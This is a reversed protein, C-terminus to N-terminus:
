AHAAAATRAAAAALALALMVTAACRMVVAAMAPTCLWPRHRRHRTNACSAAAAAAAAGAPRRSPLLLDCPPRRRRWSAAPRPALPHPRRHLPALCPIEPLSRLRRRPESNKPGCLLCNQFLLRRVPPSSQAQISAMFPTSRLLHSCRRPCRVRVARVQPVPPLRPSRPAMCPLQLYCPHQALYQSVVTSSGQRSHHQHHPVPRLACRGTPGSRRSQADSSLGSAAPM